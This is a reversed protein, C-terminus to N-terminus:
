NGCCEGCFSFLILAVVINQKKGQRKKQGGGKIFIVAAAGRPRALEESEIDHLLVASAPTSDPEGAVLLFTKRKERQNRRARLFM